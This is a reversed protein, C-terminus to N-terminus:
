RKVPDPKSCFALRARAPNDAYTAQFYSFPSCTDPDSFPFCFTKKKKITKEFPVLKLAIDTTPWKPKHAASWDQKTKASSSCSKLTSAHFKTVGRVVQFFTAHFNMLIVPLQAM